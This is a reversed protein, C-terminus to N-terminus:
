MRINKLTKNQLNKLVIIKLVRSKLVIKLVGRLRELALQPFYYVFLVYMVNEKNKSCHSM